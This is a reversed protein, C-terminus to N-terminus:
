QGRVESKQGRNEAGEHMMDSVEQRHGIYFVTSVVAIAITVARYALAVMLGQGKLVEVGVAVHRYLYDLVGEFAGLGSLPLPLVGTVMSLPVIMLHEVLGPSNGPLGRAILYITVAFMAHSLVSMAITVAVIGLKSRYIRVAGILKRFVEGVRPLECLWQSLKGGTTGPIILAVIALTGIATAVMTGRGLMITEPTTFVESGFILMTISALLFLAYLGVARDVVVSAVSEPRRRPQERALFIAKFLDGGVSGLSIFNFLYGLFGLRLADRLSFPIELARVLVFWRVITIVVAVLCVLFAALLMGWQKPEDALRTFASDRSADVILYTLIAASVGYKLFNGLWRLARGRSSRPTAPARSEIAAPAGSVAMKGPEYSNGNSAM